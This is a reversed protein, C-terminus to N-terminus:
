FNEEKLRHCFTNATEWYGKPQGAKILFVSTNIQASSHLYFVKNGLQAHGILIHLYIYINAVSIRIPTSPSAKLFPKSKNNIKFCLSLRIIEKKKSEAAQFKLTITPDRAAM